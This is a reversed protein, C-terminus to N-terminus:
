YFILSIAIHNLVLTGADLNSSNSPFFLILVIISSAISHSALIYVLRGQIDVGRISTRRILERIVSANIKVVNIEQLVKVVSALISGVVVGIAEWISFMILSNM